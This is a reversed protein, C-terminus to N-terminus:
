GFSTYFLSPEARSERVGFFGNLGALAFCDPSQLAHTSTVRKLGVFGRSMLGQSDSGHGKM